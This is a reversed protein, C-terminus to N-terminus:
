PHNRSELKLTFLAIGGGLSDHLHSWVMVFAWPLQCKAFNNDVSTLSTSLPRFCQINPMKIVSLVLPLQAM